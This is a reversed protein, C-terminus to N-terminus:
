LRDNNDRIIYKYTSSFKPSIRKGDQEVWKLVVDGSYQVGISIKRKRIEDETIEGLIPPIANERVAKEFIVKEKKNKDELVDFFGKNQNFDIM